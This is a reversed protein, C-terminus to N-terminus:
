VTTTLSYQDLARNRGAPQWGNDDYKDVSSHIRPMGDIM